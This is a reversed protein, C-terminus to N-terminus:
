ASTSMRSSWPVCSNKMVGETTTCVNWRIWWKDSASFVSRAWASRKEHEHVLNLFRMIYSRDNTLVHAASRDQLYSVRGHYDSRGIYWLGHSGLRLCSCESHSWWFLCIPVLWHSSIQSLRVFCKIWVVRGFWTYTGGSDSM